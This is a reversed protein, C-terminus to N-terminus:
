LLKKVSNYLEKSNVPSDTTASSVAPKRTSESGAEAKFKDFEDQLAKLQNEIKTKEDRLNKLEEDNSSKRNEALASDITQVQEESLLLGGESVTVGEVNLLENVNVYDKKMVDNIITTEEKADTHKDFLNKIRLLLNSDRREDEIVAPLGFHNVVNAYANRINKVHSKTEDNDIINDVLGFEKAEEPSLWKEKSMLELNEELTKKNRCSYVSALCKDITDLNERQSQFDKIIEDLKEKNASTWLSITKNSNHILMLSGRMINVSKAKMCLVTAISATMGVIFMNCKGHEAIYEMITLGDAIYGGPSTVVINVDQGKHRDLFSKVMEPTTGRQGSWWDYSVGITGTICFDFKM